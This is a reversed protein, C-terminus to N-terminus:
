FVFYRLNLLHIHRSARWKYVYGDVVIGNNFKQKRNDDDRTSILIQFLKQAALVKVAREAVTLRRSCTNSRSFLKAFLISNTFRELNKGKLFDQHFEIKAYNQWSNHM